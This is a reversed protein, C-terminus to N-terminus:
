NEGTVEGDAEESDDHMLHNTAYTKIDDAYKGTVGKPVCWSRECGEEPCYVVEEDPSPLMGTVERGNLDDVAALHVTNIVFEFDPRVNDLFVSASHGIPCVCSISYMWHYPAYEGSMAPGNPILREGCEPAPCGINM